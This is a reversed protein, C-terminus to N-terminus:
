VGYRSRTMEFYDRHEQTSLARNFILSEGISAYCPDAFSGNVLVGGVVLDAASNNITTFNGDAAKTPNTDLFGNVYLSLTGANFTFGFCVWQFASSSLSSAYFKTTLAGFTTTNSVAVLVPSGLTTLQRGLFWGWDPPTGEDAHSIIIGNTSHSYIWALVSLEQASNGTELFDSIRIGKTINYPFTWGLSFYSELKRCYVNDVRGVFAADGQFKLNGTTTPFIIDEYNSSTLNRTTGNVGGLQPTITGATRTLYYSLLYREGVVVSIDQELDSATGATKDAGNSVYTWGTGLTWGTASGTFTGNTVKETPNLVPESGPSIGTIVGHNGQGSVDWIKQANAGYAYFPLYLVCGNMNVPRFRRSTRM